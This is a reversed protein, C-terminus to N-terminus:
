YLPRGERWKGGGRERAERAQRTQRTERRREREGLFSFFYIGEITALCEDGKSQYRQVILFYIFRNM